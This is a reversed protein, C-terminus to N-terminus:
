SLLFKQFSKLYFINNNSYFIDTFNSFNSINIRNSNFNHIAVGENRPILKGWVSSFHVCISKGGIYHLPSLRKEEEKRYSEATGWDRHSHDASLKGTLAVGYLEATWSCIDDHNFTGVIPPSIVFDTVRVRSLHLIYSAIQWIGILNHRLPLISRSNKEKHM